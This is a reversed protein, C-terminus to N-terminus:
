NDEKFQSLDSNLSGDAIGKFKDVIERLLRIEAEEAQITREWTSWDIYSCIANEVRSRLEYPPLADAEVVDNGYKTKFRKTRPDSDKVRLPPLNFLRIDEPLIALRQITFDFTGYKELSVSLDREIDVGSSDHDGIYFIVKPKDIERFRKAIEYKKTTSCFGRHARLPVGYSKCIELVAGTLSDKELWVEIHFPQDNWYDKRYAITVVRLYQELNDWVKPQYEVKSRDVIWDYPIEGEERADTMIRSIKQYSARDNNLVGKSVLRYFLQRITMPHDNLLIERSEEILKKTREWKNRAM